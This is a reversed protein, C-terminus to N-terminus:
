HFEGFDSLMWQEVVVLEVPGFNLTILMESLDRTNM